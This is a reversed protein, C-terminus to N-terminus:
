HAGPLYGGNGTDPLAIPGVAGGSAPEYIVDSAVPPSPPVAVPCSAVCEARLRLMGGADSRSGVQVAYQGYINQDAVDFEVADGCAIEVLGYPLAAAVTRRYVVITAPYDSESADIRLREGQFPPVEYWITASLDGCPQPEGPDVSAGSTDITENMGAFIGGPFQMSDNYPPCSRPGCNIAIHLEGSAGDRGGVQILYPQNAYAAFEVQANAAADGASCAITRSPIYGSPDSGVNYVAVVTDFSSGSTDIAITANAPISAMYWVTRGIHGCPAPEDPETTAAETHAIDTMPVSYGLAGAVDDNGPPCAPDCAFNITVNGTAGDKGGVQFWYDSFRETNVVLKSQQAGGSNDDCDSPSLSGPPSPVITTGPGYVALVTDFDSGITDVAVTSASDMWLHFWITAGINGCPRPEGTELTAHESSTVYTTQPSFASVYVGAAAKFDDFDPRCYPLCRVSVNLNGRAGDKGGVQIYYTEDREAAFTVLSSRDGSDDGCEISRLGGGPPSPLFEGGSTYVTVITDFDSGATSVEFNATQSPMYSFWVTAGIAGCPSGEGPELTAGNTRQTENWPLSGTGYLAHPSAFNDNDPPLDTALAARSGPESMALAVGALVVIAALARIRRTM